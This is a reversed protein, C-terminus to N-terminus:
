HLMNNGLTRFAENIDQKTVLADVIDTSFQNM